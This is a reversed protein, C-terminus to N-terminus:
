AHPAVCNNGMRIKRASLDDCKNASFVQSKRLAAACYHLSQMHSCNNSSSKWQKLLPWLGYCFHPPYPLPLSSHGLFCMDSSWMPICISFCHVAHCYLSCMQFHESKGRMLNIKQLQLRSFLVNKSACAQKCSLSDSTCSPPRKYVKRATLYRRHMQCDSIKNQERKVFM